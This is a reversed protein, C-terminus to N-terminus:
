KNNNNDDDFYMIHEPMIFADHGQKHYAPM